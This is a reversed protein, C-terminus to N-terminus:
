KEESELEDALQRLAEILEAYDFKWDALLDYTCERIFEINRKDM